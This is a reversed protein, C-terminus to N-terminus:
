RANRSPRCPPAPVGYRLPSAGEPGRGFREAPLGRLVPPGVLVDDAVALGFQELAVQTSAQEVVPRRELLHEGRGHETGVKGAAAVIIEAGVAEGLGCDTQSEGGL